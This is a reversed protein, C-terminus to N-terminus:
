GTCFSFSRGLCRFLVAAAIRDLRRCGEVTRRFSTIYQLGLDSIRAADYLYFEDLTVWVTRSVVVHLDNKRATEGHVYDVKFYRVWLAVLLVCAILCTTSIAIRLKRFRM